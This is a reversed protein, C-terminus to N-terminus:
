LVKSDAYMCSFDLSVRLGGDVGASGKLYFAPGVRDVLQVRLAMTDGPRILGKFKVNNARAVVPVRAECQVPVPPGLLGADALLALLAAGAQFICECTIVGPVIPFNPYHGQVFHADENVRKVAIAIRQEADFEVVEDILRMPPRHPILEEIAKM